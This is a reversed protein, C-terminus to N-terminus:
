IGESLSLARTKHIHQELRAITDMLRRANALSNMLYMTERLSEYESLPLVVISEHGARTIMAEERHAEVYDLVETFQEASGDYLSNIVSM